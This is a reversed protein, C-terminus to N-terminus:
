RTASFEWPRKPLAPGGALKNALKGMLGDFAQPSTVEHIFHRDIFLADPFGEARRVVHADWLKEFITRAKV